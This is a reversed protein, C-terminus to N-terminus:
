LALSVPLIWYFREQSPNDNLAEDNRSEISYESSANNGLLTGILLNPFTELNCKQPISFDLMIVIQFVCCMLQAVFAAEEGAKRQGNSMQENFVAHTVATSEFNAAGCDWQHFDGKEKPM